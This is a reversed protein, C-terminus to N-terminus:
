LRHLQNYFGVREDFYRPQMPEKPLLVWSCNIVFTLPDDNDQHGYTKVSRLETNIPFTKVSEVYSKDAQLATLKSSKKQRKSLYLSENDGKVLDTIDILFLTQDTNVAKIDFSAIIAPRNSRIVNYYMSQTSDASQERALVKTLFLNNDSGKEFRLMGSNIQDGAYGFFNARFGQPAEAIRSVMLIDRGLLTDPIGLFIRKDQTYVPTMGQMVTTEPKIFDGLPAPTKDEKKEDNTKELRNTEQPGRRFQANVPQLGLALIALFLFTKAAKM